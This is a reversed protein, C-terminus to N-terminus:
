WVDVDMKQSTIEKKEVKEVVGIDGKITENMKLDIIKEIEDLVDKTENVPIGERQIWITLKYFDEGKKITISKALGVVDGELKLTENKGKM